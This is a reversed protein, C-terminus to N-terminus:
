ASMIGASQPLIRFHIMIETFQKLITYWTVGTIASVAIAAAFLNM